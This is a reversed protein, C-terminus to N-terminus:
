ACSRLKRLKRKTTFPYIGRYKGDYVFFFRLSNDHATFLCLREKMSIILRNFYLSRKYMAHEPEEITGRDYIRAITIVNSNSQARSYLYKVCAATTRAM